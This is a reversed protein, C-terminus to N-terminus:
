APAEDVAEPTARFGVKRVVRWRINKSLPRTKEIAVLDGEQCKIEDRAM